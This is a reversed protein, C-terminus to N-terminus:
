RGRLCLPISLLLLGLTSITCPSGRKNYATGSQCQFCDASGYGSLWIHGQSHADQLVVAFRQQSGIPHCRRVRQAAMSAICARTARIRTQARSVLHFCCWASFSPLTWVAWSQPVALGTGCAQRRYACVRCCRTTRRSPCSCPRCGMSTAVAAPFRHDAAVGVAAGLAADAIRRAAVAVAAVDVVAVDAAGVVAAASGVVLHRSGMGVVM